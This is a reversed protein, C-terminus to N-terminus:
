GCGELASTLVRPAILGGVWTTENMIGQSICNLPLINKNNKIYEWIWEGVFIGWLRCPDIRLTM